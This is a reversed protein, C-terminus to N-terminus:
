DYRLGRRPEIQASRAGAVSGSLGGAAMTAVLAWLLHAGTLHSVEGEMGGLGAFVRNVLPQGILALVCAFGAGFAAIAIGQLCPLLSLEASSLGLLRLIALERAKDVVTAALHLGLTLVFGIVGLTSIALFILTLSREIVLVRIVEEARTRVDLGEILLVDRLRPVNRVDATYLRFSSYSQREPRLRDEGGADDPWGLEPVAYGQRWTEVHNELEPSVLIDDTQLLDRPIIGIVVVSLKKAQRTQFVARQVILELRDGVAAKAELAVRTTVMIEQTGAPAVGGQLLPDGAATPVMRTELLGRGDIARLRVSSALFNARPLLFAVDEREGLREFWGLSLETDRVLRIERVNPDARLADILNTVVGFKLGFLVLLPLLTTTVAISLCFTTPWGHRLDKLALAFVLGFRPIKVFGQMM